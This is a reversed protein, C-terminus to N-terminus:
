REGWSILLGATAEPWTPASHYFNPITRGRVDVRFGLPGWLNMAKLGGGYNFTLFTDGDSILKTPASNAVLTGGPGAVLGGGQLFASDGHRVEATLGGVGGVLYPSFKAGLVRRNGFNWAGDLDYVMAFVTPAGATGFTTTGSFDPTNGTQFHNLYSVGVEVEGGGSFILGGKLGFIGQALIKNDNFSNMRMPWIGGANMYLEASTGPGNGTTRPLAQPACPASCSQTSTSTTDTTIQTQTTDTTTQDSTQAHLTVAFFIGSVFLVIALRMELQARM